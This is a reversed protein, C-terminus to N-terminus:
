KTGLKTPPEFSFRKIVLEAVGDRAWHPLMSWLNIRANEGGPEPINRRIVERKVLVGGSVTEFVVQGATWTFSHISASNAPPLMFRVLNGPITYPQVVFQVNNDGPQGWRSIEIDIERHHYDPADSWIFMGLVLNSDLQTVEPGTEFRYTGFGFSQVSAM